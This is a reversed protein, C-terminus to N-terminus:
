PNEGDGSGVVGRALASAVADRVVEAVAKQVRANLGLLQEHLVRGIAESIQRDLEPGLHALLAQAGPVDAAALGPPTACAADPQDGIVETLTPVNRPAPRAPPDTIDDTM